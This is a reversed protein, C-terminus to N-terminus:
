MQEMGTTGGAVMTCRKEKDWHHLMAVDAALSYIALAIYLCFLFSLISLSAM